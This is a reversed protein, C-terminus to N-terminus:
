TFPVKADIITFDFYTAFLNVFSLFARWAVVLQDSYANEKFLPMRLYIKLSFLADTGSRWFNASILTTSPALFKAGLIM